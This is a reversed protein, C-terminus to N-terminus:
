VGNQLSHYRKEMDSKEDEEDDNDVGDYSELKKTSFEISSTIFIICTLSKYNQTLCNNKM